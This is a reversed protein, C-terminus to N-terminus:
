CSLAELRLESVGGRTATINSDTSSVITDEMFIKTYEAARNCDEEFANACASVIENAPYFARRTGNLNLIRLSLSRREDPPCYDCYGQYVIAYGNDDSSVVYFGQKTFMVADGEPSREGLLCVHGVAENVSYERVKSGLELYNRYTSMVPSKFCCTNSAPAICANADMVLESVDYWCGDNAQVPVEYLDGKPVCDQTIRVRITSDTAVEVYCIEGSLVRLWPLEKTRVIFMGTYMEAYKM